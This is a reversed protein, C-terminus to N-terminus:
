NYIIEFYSEMESSFKIKYQSRLVALFLQYAKM